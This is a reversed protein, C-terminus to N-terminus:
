LLEAVVLFLLEEVVDFMVNFGTLTSCVGEGISTSLGGVVVAVLLIEFMAFPMSSIKETSGVAGGFDRNSSSSFHEVGFLMGVVASFMRPSILLSILSVASSLIFGTKFRSRNMPSPKNSLWPSSLEIRLIMLGKSEGSEDRNPICGKNGDVGILEELTASEAAVVVAAVGVVVM